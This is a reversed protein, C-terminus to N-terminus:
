KGPFVQKALAGSLNKQKYANFTSVYQDKTRDCGQHTCLKPVFEIGIRGFDQFM